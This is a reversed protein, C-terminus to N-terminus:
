YTTVIVLHFEKVVVVVQVRRGAVKRCLRVRWDGHKDLKPGDNIIGNRITELVQRMSINRLQMQERFHPEEMRLNESEAALGRVHDLLDEPDASMSPAPFKIVTRQKRM